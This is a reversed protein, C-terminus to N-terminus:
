LDCRTTGPLSGCYTLHFILVTVGTSVVSAAKQVSLFHYISVPTFPYMAVAKIFMENIVLSQSFIKDRSPYNIGRYKDRQIKFKDRQIKQQLSDNWRRKENKIPNNVNKKIFKTKYITIYKKQGTCPKCSSIAM